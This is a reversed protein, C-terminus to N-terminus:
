EPRAATLIHTHISPGDSQLSVSEVLLELKEISSIRDIEPLNELSPFKARLCLRLLKRAEDVRGETRGEALGETRGEALGEMRGEARGQAREYRVISSGERFARELGMGGGGLMEILTDRDYRLSGLQLFRAIAEENGQSTVIFGIKRVLEESSKMLLAWPLLRPNNTELVVTPDIEWMRVVRYPHITHTPGIDYDGVEPTQAPVRRSAAAGAGVGGTDPAAM